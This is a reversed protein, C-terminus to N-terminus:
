CPAGGGAIRKALERSSPRSSASFRGNSGCAQDRLRARRRHYALPPRITGGGYTISDVSPLLDWRGGFFLDVVKALYSPHYSPAFLYGDVHNFKPKYICIFVREVSILDSTPPVEVYLIRDYAKKPVHHSKFRGGINKTSGVYVVTDKKLMFYVGPCPNFEKIGTITLPCPLATAGPATSQTGIKDINPVPLALVPLPSNHTEGPLVANNPQASSVPTHIELGGTMPEFGIPQLSKHASHINPSREQYRMPPTKPMAQCEIANSFIPHIANV